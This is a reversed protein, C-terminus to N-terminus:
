PAIADDTDEPHVTGAEAFTPGTTHPRVRDAESRAEALESELAHIREEMRQLRAEPSEHQSSPDTM